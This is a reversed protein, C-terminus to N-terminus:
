CRYLFFPLPSVRRIDWLWERKEDIEMERSPIWPLLQENQREEAATCEAWLEGAREGKEGVVFSMRNKLMRATEGQEWGDVVMEGEEEQVGFSFDLEEEGDVEMSFWSMRVPDFIMSGVVKVNNARPNVFPSSAASPRIPSNTQLQTILAPRNSNTPIKDFKALAAENGEWRHQTPNWTMGSQVASECADTVANRSSPFSLSGKAVDVPGLNRILQPEKKAKKAVGVRKLASEEEKERKMTTRKGIAIEGSGERRGIIKGGGEVGATGKNKM